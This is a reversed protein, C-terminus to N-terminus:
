RVVRWVATVIWVGVLLVALAAIVYFANSGEVLWLTRGQLGRGAPELVPSIDEEYVLKTTSAEPTVCEAVYLYNGYAQLADGRYYVNAMGNVAKFYGLSEPQNPDMTQLPRGVSREPNTQILVWDGGQNKGFVKVFCRYDTARRADGLDLLQYTKGRLEASPDSYVSFDKSGTPVYVAAFATAVCLAAVLLVLVRKL